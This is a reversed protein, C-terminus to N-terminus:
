SCIREYYANTTPHAFNFYQGRDELYHRSLERYGNLSRGVADLLDADYDDTLNPWVQQTEVTYKNVAIYLWDPEVATINVQLDRLFNELNLNLSTKLVALMFSDRHYKSAVKCEPLRQQFYEIDPDGQITLRQINNQKVFEILRHDQEIVGTGGYFMELQKLRWSAMVM